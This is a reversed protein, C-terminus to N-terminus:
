SRTGSQTWGPQGAIAAIRSKSLSRSDRGESAAVTLAIDSQQDNNGGSKNGAAAAANPNYEVSGALLCQQRHHHALFAAERRRRPPARYPPSKRAAKPTPEAARLDRQNIKLPIPKTTSRAREAAYGAARGKRWLSLWREPAAQRACGRRWCAAAAAGAAPMPKATNSINICSPKSCAKRRCYVSSTIRASSPSMYLEPADVFILKRGSVRGRCGVEVGRALHSSDRARPREM